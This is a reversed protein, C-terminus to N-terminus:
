RGLASPDSTMPSRRFVAAFRVKESLDLYLSLLMELRRAILTACLYRAQSRSVPGPAETQDSSSALAPKDTPTEPILAIVQDILPSNPAAM